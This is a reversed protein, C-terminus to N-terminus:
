REVALATRSRRSLAAEGQREPAADAVLEEVLNVLELDFRHRHRQDLALTCARKGGLLQLYSGLGM